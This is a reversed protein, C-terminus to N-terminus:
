ESRDWVRVVMSSPKNAHFSRSGHNMAPSIALVCLGLLEYLSDSVEIKGTSVPGLQLLKLARGGNHGKRTTSNERDECCTQFTPM